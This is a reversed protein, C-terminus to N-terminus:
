HIESWNNGIQYDAKTPINLKIANVMIDSLLTAEKEGGSVLIEDHVVGVIRLGAKYADVMAMMTQDAASGQALQNLAKHPFTYYKGDKVACDMAIRRGGITTIYGKKKMSEECKKALTKLFPKADNFSNLLERGREGAVRVKTKSGPPTWWSTPLNLQDCIKAGGAGYALGLGITKATPKDVCMLKAVENHENFDVDTHYHDVYAQAGACKLIFAYHVILRNEQSSYDCSGLDEGEDPVFLSRCIPGVKEDRVPIQQYNPKTCSMRGTKASMVKLEPYIIGYDQYAVEEETMGLTHVQMAITKRIFNNTINKYKRAIVIAVCIPHGQDQLWDSRIQPNGKATYPYKIGLKDFIRPVDINSKLNFEEGALDFCKREAAEIIPDLEVIAERARNLDIRMGQRRAQMCPYIVFSYKRCLEEYGRQECTELFHELLKWTVDVDRCAYKAVAEYCHEQMLDMNSMVWKGVAKRRKEDFERVYLEDNKEARAKDTLERKLYPFLDAQICADTMGEDKGIKLYKKGLFDLAFSNVSSKYLKAAIITDIINTDNFEIGLTMLGAVDYSLNHAVVADCENVADQIWRLQQPDKDVLPIYTTLEDVWSRRVAVGLVRYMCGPVKNIAFAWGAGLDLSIYPDKTEIDVILYKINM